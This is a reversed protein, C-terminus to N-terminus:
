MSVLWKVRPQQVSCCMCFTEMMVALETPCDHDLPIFPESSSPQSLGVLDDMSRLKKFIVTQWGM